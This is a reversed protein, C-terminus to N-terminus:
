FNEVLIEAYLDRFTDGAYAALEPDRFCLRSGISARTHTAARFTYAYALGAIAGNPKGDPGKGQGPLIRFYPFYKYQNTNNWDPRWGENLAETIVELKRRAIEDSRMLGGDAIVEPEESDSIGLVHCADVYSKVRDRIDTYDQEETYFDFVNADDDENIIDKVQDSAEKESDFRAVFEASEGYKRFLAIKKM